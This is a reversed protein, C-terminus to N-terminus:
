RFTKLNTLNTYTFKDDWRSSVDGLFSALLQNVTVSEWHVESFRSSILRSGAARFLEDAARVQQLPLGLAAM